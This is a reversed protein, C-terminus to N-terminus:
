ETTQTVHCGPCTSYMSNLDTEFEEGCMKCIMTDLGFLSAYKYVDNIPEEEEEEGLKKIPYNGYRSDYYPDAKSSDKGYDTNYNHNNWGGGYLSSYSYPSIDATFFTANEEDLLMREIGHITYDLADVYLTEVKTHESVYGASLNVGAIDYIEMFTAIDTFSGIETGFGFENIYLEFLDNDCDYFVAQGTGRRDIQIFYKLDFPFDEFVQTFADAGLGGIEEDTTFIVHPRHGKKLIELIAIIGARDDAGIGLPSSYSHYEKNYRIQWKTPKTMHVTDMHAVLCIPINGQALIFADTVFIDEKDFYEELTVPLEKLLEAQEKTFLERYREVTNDEVDEIIEAVVPTPKDYKSVYKYTTKASNKYRKKSM